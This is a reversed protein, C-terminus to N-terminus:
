FHYLSSRLAILTKNTTNWLTQGLSHAKNILIRLTLANYIFFSIGTLLNVYTRIEIPDQSIFYDIKIFPADLQMVDINSNYKVGDPQIFFFVCYGLWIIFPIFHPWQKEKEFNKFQSIIFLYILPALVFNLPEAFNTLWLYDFILRTYNLWGELMTLSIGLIFLGVFLNPLNSKWSKIILFFSIFFGLFLGFVMLLATFDFHLPM